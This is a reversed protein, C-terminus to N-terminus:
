HIHIPLVISIGASPEPPAYYVPPPAYVPTPAVYIRDHDRHYHHHDHDHWDRHDDHHFRDDDAQAPAIAFSGLVSTIALAMMLKTITSSRQQTSTKM